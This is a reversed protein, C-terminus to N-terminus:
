QAKQGGLHMIALIVDRHPESEYAAQFAAENAETWSAEAAANIADVSALDPLMYWDRHTFSPDSHLAQAQLGYSLVKGDTKLKEVIPWWPAWSKEAAAAQGPKVKYMGAFIYRPAAGGAAPPVIVVNRVVEDFHSREVYIAKGQEDLAKTEDASRSRMQQMVAGVWKDVNGFSPLTVWTLMNWKFGAEHNIPTALGWSTITGDALLKDLLPADYKASLAVADQLKGQQTLDYAVWTIPKASEQAVAPLSALLLAALAGSAARTKMM